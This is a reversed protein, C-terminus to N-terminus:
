KSVPVAQNINLWFGAGKGVSEPVARHALPALSPPTPPSPSSLTSCLVSPGGSAWTEALNLPGPLAPTSSDKGLRPTGWVWDKATMRGSELGMWIDESSSLPSLIRLLFFGWDLDPVLSPFATLVLCDQNM